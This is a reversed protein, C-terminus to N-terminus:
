LEAGTFLIQGAASNFFCRYPRFQTLGSAVTIQVNGCTNSSAALAIATSVTSTTGDNVSMHTANDVSIGSPPIRCYNYFFNVLTNTTSSAFGNTLPSTTGSSNFAPLYYQCFALEVPIPRLEIPPPLSTLGATAGATVRIDAYTILIKGTAANLANGFDLTIELGNVSSSSATFTYAIITNGANPITQLNVASVDTVTGGWNDQATAHKVTISPTLSGSALANNITFQVTVQKGALPAAVTSEIRQKIFVDTLGTASNLQLFNANALPTSGYTQAWTLTAGTAGVMWGDLTYNTNGTTVSGSVGRQAIDFAPNRFKNVFGGNFPLINTVQQITMDQENALIATPNGKFTLGNAQALIANTISNNPPLTNTAGVPYVPDISQILTGTATYGDLRLNVAGSVYFKCQGNADLTLPNSLPTVLGGDAYITVPTTTGTQYIFVQGSSAPLGQYIWEFVPVSFGAM